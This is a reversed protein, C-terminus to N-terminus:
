KITIIGRMGMESHKKNTKKDKVSCHLDYFKGTRIPVFWWELKQKPFIEVELINGKIEAIKKKNVQVQIKRTFISQVFKNSTFYHKSDSENKLILKYLNGTHFELSSPEYFHKQGNKGKLLIIKEIPKQRALDGLNKKEANNKEILFFYFFMFFSLFILLFSRYM